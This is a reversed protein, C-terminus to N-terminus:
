PQDEQAAANAGGYQGLLNTIKTSNTNLIDIVERNGMNLFYDSVSRDRLMANFLNLLEIVRTKQDQTYTNASLGISFADVADFVIDFYSVVRRLYDREDQIDALENLSAVWAEQNLTAELLEERRAHAALFEQQLAEMAADNLCAKGAVVSCFSLSVACFFLLYINKM